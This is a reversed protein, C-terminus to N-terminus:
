DAEGYAGVQGGFGSMEGDLAFVDAGGHEFAIAFAHLLFPQAKTSPSLCRHSRRMASPSSRSGTWKQCFISASGVRLVSHGILAM